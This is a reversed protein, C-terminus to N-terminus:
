HLFETNPEELAFYAGELLFIIGKATFKSEKWYKDFFDRAYKMFWDEKHIQLRVGNTFLSPFINRQYYLAESKTSLSKFIDSQNLGARM